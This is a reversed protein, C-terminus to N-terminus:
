NLTVFLKHFSDKKPEVMNSQSFCEGYSNIHVIEKNFIVRM